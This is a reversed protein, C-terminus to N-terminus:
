LGFRAKRAIEKKDQSHFFQVLHRAASIERKRCFEPYISPSCIQAFEHEKSPSLSLASLVRELGLLDKVLRRAHVACAFGTESPLLRLIGVLEFISQIRAEFYKFALVQHEPNLCPLIMRLQRHNQILHHSPGRMEIDDYRYNLVLIFDLRRLEPLDSMLCQLAEFSDVLKIFKLIFSFRLEPNIAKVVESLDRFSLVLDNLLNLYRLQDIDSLLQLVDLHCRLNGEIIKHYLLAFEYRAVPPLREIFNITHVSILKNGYLRGFELQHITPLFSSLRNLSHGNFGDILDKKMWFLDWRLSTSLFELIKFFQSEYMIKDECIDILKLHEDDPLESLVKILQDVDHIKYKFRSAFDFREDVALLGLVRSLGSGGYFHFSYKEAFEVREESAHSALETWFEFDTYM